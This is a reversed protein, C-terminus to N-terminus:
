SSEEVNAERLPNEFSTICEKYIPNEITEWAPNKLDHEFKSYEMNDYFMTLLKWIVICLLVTLVVAGSVSAGIILPDPPSPPCERLSKIKITQENESDHVNFKIICGFRDRLVCGTITLDKSFSAEQLLSVIEVNNCRQDCISQNYLGQNFGACEVCNYQIECIAPCNKCRECHNGTFGASCICEGCECIGNESCLTNNETMCMGTSTSCECNEGTFNSYCACKGCDCIGNTPGGCLLGNYSRCNRDSCECKEGDFGPSCECKGCTCNGVGSCIGQETGCAEAVSGREDCDCREGAWGPDCICIGCEYRGRGNCKASKPEAEPEMQCDCGCAHELDVTVREDLGEPFIAFSSNREEPCTNLNSQISADFTLTQNFNLVTCLNTLNFRGDSNCDSYIKLMVEKPLLSSVMKVTDRLRRYSEGIIQIINSSTTDLEAAFDIGGPLAAALSNYVTTRVRESEDGGIVFLININNERAKQIIQGVSPYDQIEAKSYKGTSDMHCMCDNPELIGALRGDGAQHFQIDSAYLVMKRAKNRWGIRDGCVMVQMLGDLLGEPTDFNGTTNVKSLAVKFDEVDRTLSLRHIFSYPPDCNDCFYMLSKPDTFPLINKEMSTGLGFRFDTTLLSIDDAISNALENLRQILFRMTYSPDNLFYVDLPFNRAIKYYIPLRVEADNPTLQIKVRQPRIQVAELGPGGDSFDDNQTVTIRSPERKVINTCGDGIMKELSDCRNLKYDPDKCWACGSRILCKGCRFGNCSQCFVLGPISIFLTIIVMQCYVGLLAM